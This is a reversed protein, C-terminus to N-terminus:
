AQANGQESRLKDLLSTGRRGSTLGVQVSDYLSSVKITCDDADAASASVAVAGGGGGGNGSGGGGCGGCGLTSIPRTSKHHWILTRPHTQHCHPSSTPATHFSPTYPTIIPNSGNNPCAGHQAVQPMGWASRGPCAGVIKSPCAGAIRSPSLGAFCQM